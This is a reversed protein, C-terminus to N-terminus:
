WSGATAPSLTHHRRQKHSPSDGPWSSPALPTHSKNKNSNDAHEDDRARREPGELARPRQLISHNCCSEGPRIISENRKTAVFAAISSGIM